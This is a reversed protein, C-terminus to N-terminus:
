SSEFLQTAQQQTVTAFSQVDLAGTAYAFGEVEEEQMAIAYRVPM